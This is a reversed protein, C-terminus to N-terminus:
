RTSKSQDAQLRLYERVKQYDNKIFKLIFLWLIASIIWFLSGIFITSQYNNTFSFIVSGILIAIGSGIFDFLDYLAATTGRHEPINVFTRAVNVTTGVPTGCFSCLNFVIIFSYFVPYYKFINGLNNYMPNIVDPYKLIMTLIYYFVVQIFLCIIAFLLSKNLQNQNFKKDIWKGVLTIGFLAGIAAGAGLIISATFEEIDMGMNSTFWYNMYRTVIVVGIMGTIGQVLFLINTPKKIVSIFGNWTIKNNYEYGADIKDSFEPEVSALKIDKGKISFIILLIISGIAFLFTPLKWNNLINGIIGNVGIASAKIIYVFITFTSFLKGRSNIKFLDGLYSGIIPGNAGFSVGWLIQVILYIGIQIPIFYLLISGGIWISNSIILFFKRYRPKRDVLIGWFLVTAAVSYHFFQEAFQIEEFLLGDSEILDLLMESIKSGLLWFSEILILFVFFGIGKLNTPKKSVYENEMNM